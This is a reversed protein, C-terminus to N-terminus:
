HPSPSSELHRNDDVEIWLTKVFRFFEPCCRYRIQCRKWFQDCSDLRWNPRKPKSFHNIHAFRPLASSITSRATSRKSCTCFQRVRQRVSRIGSRRLQIRRPLARAFPKSVVCRASDASSICINQQDALDAIRIKQRINAAVHRIQVSHCRDLLQESIATSRATSARENLRIRPCRNRM